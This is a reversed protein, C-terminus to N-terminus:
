DGQAQCCPAASSCHDTSCGQETDKLAPTRRLRFGESGADKLVPVM